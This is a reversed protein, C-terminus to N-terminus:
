SMTRAKPRRPTAKASASSGQLRRVIEYAKAVHEDRVYILLEPSATLLETLVVDNLAFERTLVALVGRTETAADPFMMSIESLRDLRSRVKYRSLLSRVTPEKAQDVFLKISTTGVVFKLTDGRDYEFQGIVRQLDQLLAKEKEFDVIMIRDKLTVRIAPFLEPGKGEADGFDYRRLSAVVADLEAPTGVGNAILYRALARRNVLGEQHCKEIEPHRVLFDRIGLEIQSM